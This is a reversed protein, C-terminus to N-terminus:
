PPAEGILDHRWQRRMIEVEQASLCSDVWSLVVSYLGQCDSFFL